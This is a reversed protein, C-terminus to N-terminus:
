RGGAMQPKHHEEIVSGCHACVYHVTSLDPTGDSLKAWRLGHPTNAGVGAGSVRRLAPVAVWYRRADTAEFAAEIRSFGKTTPTSVKL